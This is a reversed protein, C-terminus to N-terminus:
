RILDQQKDPLFKEAMTEYIDQSHLCTDLLFGKENDYEQLGRIYFEKNQDSIIFPVIEHKLCEKFMIMRGVRGNGDGFPHIREFMVHFHIIDEIGPSDITNYSDILKAIEEDVKAPATTEIVNFMSIINEMVKFGGVNYRPNLEDSTNRKLIVNMEIMMEKSIPDDIHQLMFDVLQFHNRAETLDDLKLVEMEKTIVSGQNFIMEVQDETLRSGEMKNSNYSFVVQSWHYINGKFRSEMQEVLEDRIVTVDM